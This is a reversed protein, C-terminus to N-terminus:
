AATGVWAPASNPDLDLNRTIQRAAHTTVAKTDVTWLQFAGGGQDPALFALLKGDPSFSPSAVLGGRVLISPSGMAPSAADFAAVSLDASQLSGHRCVMALTREDKSIAAQSCDDEPKTLGVGPSGPRGQYWVQSHVVSQTDISFKTYILGGSRLPVPGVDGGTYQNPETWRTAPASPNGASTEFIALDVRYTNYPDKPDYSFFVASGDASYRPYFAWHNTEVSPSDNRTLKLYVRGVLGLVMLDSRNLNRQVAVLRSGDPSASPQMWGSESTIQRFSGNAFRCIAGGQVVYVAGPLVPGTADTPRQITTAGGKFLSAARYVGFGFLCMAVVLAAAVIVRVTSTSGPRAEISSV